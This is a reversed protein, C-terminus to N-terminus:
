ELIKKTGIGIINYSANNKEIKCDIFYKKLEEILVSENIDLTNIFFMGNVNLKQNINNLFIPQLVFNCIKENFIDCIIFDYNEETNEIYTLADDKILKLREEPTFIKVIDFYDNSIDIGTVCSNLLKDLLHIIIGGLAVGLVLIKKM